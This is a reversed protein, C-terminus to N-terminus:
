SFHPMTYQQTLSLLTMDRLSPSPRVCYHDVIYLVTTCGEKLQDDAARSGDFGLVIFLRLVIFEHLAKFM